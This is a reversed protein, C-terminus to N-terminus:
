GKTAVVACPGVPQAHWTHQVSRTTSQRPGQDQSNPHRQPQNACKNLKAATITLKDGRQVRRNSTQQTGHQRTQRPAKCDQTSSVATTFVQSHQQQKSRLDLAPQNSTDMWSSVCAPQCVHQCGVATDMHLCGAATAVQQRVHVDPVRESLYVSLDFANVCAPLYAM